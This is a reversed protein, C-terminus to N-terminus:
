DLPIKNERILRIFETHYAPKPYAHHRAHCNACLLRCKLAESRITAWKSNWIKSLQFEKDSSEIHHFEMVDFDILGCADCKGGLLQIAKYKSKYRALGARCVNCVSHQIGVGVKNCYKCQKVLKDKYRLQLRTKMDVPPVCSVCCRRSRCDIRVGERKVYYPILANCLNCYKIKYRDHM